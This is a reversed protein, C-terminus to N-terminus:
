VWPDALSRGKLPSTLRPFTNVIEAQVRQLETDLPVFLHDARKKAWAYVKDDKEELEELVIEPSTFCGNVIAEDLKEWFSPFLDPPYLNWWSEILASTDLCYLSAM